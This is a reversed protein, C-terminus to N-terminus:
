FRSAHAFREELWSQMRAFVQEQEPENMLEHFLREFCYSQVVLRPASAAFAASGAPAVCRDAGAWLLLTPVLWESAHDLVEEGADVIMRALMPTIKKHVLPDSVYAKVVAASRSIWAPKLGNGAPLHPMLPAAVALLAKQFWSMGPDLAPSTLLLGDVPRFWGPLVGGASTSLGGAVFRAAVLGGMSHGLLVLAGAGLQEDAHLEDIVLALDQLLREPGPIDGRAGGSAGHGRQDYAVVHWGWSNLRAAVHAYRGAHEGLGHVILVTGRAKDLGPKSWQRWHLPLGDDTRLTRMATLTPLAVRAL